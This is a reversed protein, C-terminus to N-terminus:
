GGMESHLPGWLYSEDGLIFNMMFELAVHTMLQTFSYVKHGGSRKRSKGMDMVEPVQPIKKM